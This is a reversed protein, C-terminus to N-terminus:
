YQLGNQTGAANGNQNTTQAAPPIKLKQGVNIRSTRLGNAARLQSISINNANAIRTLNDGSKVTYIKMGGATESSAAETGSQTSAAGGEPIMLKDGPQIRAADVNPNAQRIASLTTGHAKAIKWFSDGSVVTYEKMGASFQSGGQVAGPQMSGSVLPSSLNTAQWLTEPSQSSQQPSALLPDSEPLPPLAPNGTETPLSSQSTYYLNTGLPPLALSSNTELAAVDNTEADANQGTQADRKCGQLLLGGFFVIHIAVITAVAVRVNSAGKAAQAQFTGHPILPNPTIM